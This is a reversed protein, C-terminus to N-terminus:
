LLLHLVSTTDISAFNAHWSQSLINSVRAPNYYWVLHLCSLTLFVQLWHSLCYGFSLCRVLCLVHETQLHIFFTHIKISTILTVILSCIDLAYEISVHIFLSKIHTSGINSSVYNARFAKARFQVNSSFQKQLPLYLGRFLCPCTYLPWIKCLVGFRYFHQRAGPQEAVTHLLQRLRATPMHGVRICARPIM